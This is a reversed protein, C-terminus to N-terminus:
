FYNDHILFTIFNPEDNTQKIRIEEINNDYTLNIEIMSIDLRKLLTVPDNNIGFTEDIHRYLQLSLQMDLRSENITISQIMMNLNGQNKSCMNRLLQLNTPYFRASTELIAIFVSYIELGRRNKQKRFQNYNSLYNDTMPGELGLRAIDIMGGIM